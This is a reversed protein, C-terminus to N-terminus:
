ADTVELVTAQASQAALLTPDARYGGVWVVRGGFTVVPVYPRQRAPVGAAALMKGIAQRGGAVLPVRDGARPSRVVLPGAIDVAVRTPTPAQVTGRTARVLHDGFRVIGPVALTVSDPAAAVAGGEAVLVGRDVAVRGGAMERPRGGNRALDVCRAIWRADADLGADTLLRRVLLRVVAPHEAELVRVNLGAGIACREWAAAVIVDLVEAEDRLQDAFRAVALGAGPHVAELAPLLGHRVRARAFRQDANSPDQVVAIGWARCWARTEDATACLLPRVLDGNVPAMGLAGSRGTGRAIRFLVTEAQDGATHGTAVRDFGHDAAIRRAAALRADRARAQLAAGATLGLREVWVPLGLQVAAAAVADAEGGSASRIGHDMTLVGIAGPHLQALIHMLCMSDAGGSVLVLMRSGEAVMRHRAVYAAVRQTLPDSMGTTQRAAHCEVELGSVAIM